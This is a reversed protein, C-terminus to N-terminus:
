RAKEHRRAVAQSLASGVLAAADGTSYASKPLLVAGLEDLRSKEREDLSKSTVVVVGISSTEAGERLRELVEFGNVGPMVLDLFIVEPEEAHTRRLGEEGDASEVAPYGLDALLGKLIYRDIENDDVILMRSGPAAHGESGASQGVGEPVRATPLRLWFTSGKGPESEVGVTAELLDALKRSIALGLGSGITKQQAPGSLQRFEEFINEQDEPAIGIGTDTVSFVVAESELEVTIRVEGEATFKLANAIFNRLIQTLKREDVWLVPIREFGTFVLDVDPSTVLPLFMGRLASMLDQPDVKTPQVPLNGAEVKAMDLLDNVMELLEGAARRIFIVQKTQEESLDGDAHGLLLRSLALVSNLPTRFEHSMHALFRSKVQNAQHLEKAKEDLEAYLAVVGRNTDELEQNLRVLEQQNRELAELATILDQNQQRLEDIPTRPQSDVITETIEQLQTRNFPRLSQPRAKRITVTTGNGPTSDIEFGDMLRRAGVLGLASTGSGHSSPNLVEEIDAIGPGEDAVKMVLVQSPPAEELAFEVRGSGAHVVANRALESVSTAVRIQDQPEFGLLQAVQKARQRATVVDQEYRLELTLLPLRKM